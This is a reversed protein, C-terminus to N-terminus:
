FKLQIFESELCNFSIYWKNDKFLYIYSCDTSIGLKCVEKLSSLLSPKNNGNINLKTSNLNISIYDGKDILENVKNPKNYQKILIKGLYSPNCDFVCHVVKYGSFNEEVTQITILASTPM